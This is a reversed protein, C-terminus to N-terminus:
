DRKQELNPIWLEVRTGEGLDSVDSIQHRIEKKYMKSLIELRKVTMKIGKSETSLQNSTKLEQSKKRGIGNDEVVVKLNKNEMSLHVSLFGGEDKYRLGHWVANEIYPQILMPPISFSEVKVSPDVVFQHSFKDPFRMNELQLYLELIEIEKELPIFELESNNLISRMLKSFRALYKNANLEDNKVIFNNISNLANFIFHPNMQTRLSKLALFDNHKRQIRYRVILAILTVFVLLLAIILFAIYGKQYRLQEQQLVSEQVVMQNEADYIAKDKELFDIRWQHDRLQGNLQKINSYEIESQAFLEDLLEIYNEYSAIAMEEQGTKNYVESITKAAEKKLELDEKKDGDTKKVSITNLINLAEDYKNQKSYTKAISIQQEIKKAEVNYDDSELELSNVNLNQIINSRSAREDDTNNNRRYYDALQSESQINLKQNSNKISQTKAQNLVTLELNDKRKSYLSAIKLKIATNEDLLKNSISLKDAKNYFYLASDNKNLGVYADGLTENIFVMQLPFANWNRSSIKISKKSRKPTLLGYTKFHRIAEKPLEALVYQQGIKLILDFTNEGKPFRRLSNQYNLAALDYQQYYEYFAGLKNLVKYQQSLFPKKFSMLYARELYEFSKNRDKKLYVDSSDLLQQISQIGQSEYKSIRKYSSSSNQADVHTHLIVFFLSLLIFVFRMFLTNFHLDVIIIFIVNLLQLLVLLM